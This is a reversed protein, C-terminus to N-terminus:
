DRSMMSRLVEPDLADDSADATSQNLQGDVFAGERELEPSIRLGLTLRITRFCLWGVGAAFAFCAVCGLLQIGFHGLRSTTMADEPLVFAVALTGWVGCAGHVAIAGVADDLGLRILGEYAVNHLWGALAGIAIAEAPSALHCNATIAVLGGLAGGILKAGLDRGEQRAIAHAMAVTAAAAGALNTNLIIPGVTEDLALTSGGNFGWWGIWLLLAGLAAMQFSHSAFPRPEGSASFRGQRPGIQWIAALAFWAGTSHVVTSGAFDIFGLDALWPRNDALLAGGWIWHGVLPYVVITMVVTSALYAFLSTRGAIAGSVITAATGAFALQFLFFLAPADTAGEEIGDLLFFSTGVAGGSSAGFMLGFGIAFFLLTCVVWDAFNKMAVLEANRTRVLGSELCLFGAQMLFVLCTATLLWLEDLSM